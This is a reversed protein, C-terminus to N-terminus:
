VSTFRHSHTVRLLRLCRLMPDITEAFQGMFIRTEGLAFYGLAFNPNLDIARLAAGLAREHRRTMVSLIALAYNAAPDRDDLALAREVAAQSVQLDGDIDDSYGAWCRVSLVRSLMIHARALKPDRAISRRLWTEAHRNDQPGLQNSHWMGRMCCDFAGLNTPSQRAARRGEGVLIEPEIAAVM